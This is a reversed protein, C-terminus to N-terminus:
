KLLKNQTFVKKIEELVQDRSAEKASQKPYVIFDNGLDISDFIEEICSRVKRKLENRIVARQDIKKSVVFAFRNLGQGNRAIKINFLQTSFQKPSALLFSSLRNEKKLM